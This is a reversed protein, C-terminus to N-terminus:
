QTYIDESPDDMWAFGGREKNAILLEQDTMEPLKQVAVSLDHQIRIFQGSIRKPVDPDSQPLMQLPDVPPTIHSSM